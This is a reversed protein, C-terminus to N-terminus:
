TSRVTFEKKNVGVPFKNPMRFRLITIKLKLSERVNKKSTEKRNKEEM